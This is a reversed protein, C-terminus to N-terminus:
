RVRKRPPNVWTVDVGTERATKEVAAVKDTDIVVRENSQRPRSASSCGAATVALVIAAIHTTRM